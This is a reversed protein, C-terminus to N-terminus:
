NVHEAPGMAKVRGPRAIPKSGGQTGKPIEGMAILPSILSGRGSEGTSPNSGSHLREPRPDEPIILNLKGPRSKPNHVAM